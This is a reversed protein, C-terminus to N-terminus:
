TSLSHSHTPTLSLSLIYGTRRKKTEPVRSVALWTILRQPYKRLPSDPNPPLLTLRLLSCFRSRKLSRSALSLALSLPQTVSLSLSRSRSRFLSLSLSRSRSRCLSLSLCLRSPSRCRALNYSPDFLSLSTLGNSPLSHAFIYLSLSLNRAGFTKIHLM